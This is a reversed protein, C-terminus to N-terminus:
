RAMPSVGAEGDLTTCMVGGLHEISASLRGGWAHLSPGVAERDQSLGHLCWAAGM